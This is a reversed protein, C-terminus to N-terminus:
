RPHLAPYSQPTSTRLTLNEINLGPLHEAIAVCREDQLRPCDWSIHKSTVHPAGCHECTGQDDGQAKAAMSPDWTAGQQIMRVIGAHDKDLHQYSATTIRHDIHHLHTCIKRSNANAKTRANAAIRRIAPKLEHFPCGVISLVPWDKVHIGFETGLAAAKEHVQVLLLGIPGFPAYYPKWPKRGPKGPLPAPQFATNHIHNTSRPTHSERIGLEGLFGNLAIM